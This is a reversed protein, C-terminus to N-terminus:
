EQGGQQLSSRPQDPQSSRSEISVPQKATSDEVPKQIVGAKTYINELETEYYDLIDVVDSYRKEDKFQMPLPVVISKGSM